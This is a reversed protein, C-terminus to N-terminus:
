KCRESVVPINYINHYNYIDAIIVHQPTMDYTPVTQMPKHYTDQANSMTKNTQAQLEYQKFYKIPQREEPRKHDPGEPVVQIHKIDDECAQQVQQDIM